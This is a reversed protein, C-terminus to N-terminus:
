FLNRKEGAKKSNSHRIDLKLSHGTVWFEESVILFLACPCGKRDKTLSIIGAKVMIGKIYIVLSKQLQFDRGSARTMALGRSGERCHERKQMFPPAETLMKM